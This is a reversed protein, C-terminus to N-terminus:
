NGEKKEEEPLAEPLEAAVIVQSHRIIKEKYTYGAQVEHLITNPAVEATPQPYLADHLNVDFEKGVTEIKKVENETLFKMFKEYILQVGEQISKVDSKETIHQLSREFDDVVPLLKLIFREGSYKLMTQQEQETRRKFNDFEAMKRMFRDKFDNRETELAATQKKNEELEARLTQLEMSEQSESAPIPAETESNNNTTTDPNLQENNEMQIKDSEKQNQNKSIFLREFITM